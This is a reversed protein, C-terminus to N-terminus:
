NMPFGVSSSGTESGNKAAAGAVGGLKGKSYLSVAMQLIKLSADIGVKACNLRFQKLEIRNQQAWRNIQADWMQRQKKANEDDRTYARKISEKTEGLVEVEKGLKELEKTFAKNKNEAALAEQLCLNVRDDMTDSLYQNDLQLNTANAAYVKAQEKYVKILEFMQDVHMNIEEVRAMEVHQQMNKLKEDAEAVKENAKMLSIKTDSEKMRQVSEKIRQQSEEISQWISATNAEQPKTNGRKDDANARAEDAKAENLEAESLMLYNQPSIAMGVSGLGSGSATGAGATSGGEGGNGYLLAPNLGAEKLKKVQNPFSTYNWMEKARQQNANAAMENYEHQKAMLGLNQQYQRDSAINSFYNGISGSVFGSIASKALDKLIM